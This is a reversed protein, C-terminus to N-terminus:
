DAFRMSWMTSGWLPIEVRTVLLPCKLLEGWGHRTWRSAYFCRVGFALVVLVEM